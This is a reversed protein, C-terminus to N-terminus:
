EGPLVKLKKAIKNISAKSHALLNEELKELAGKCLKELDNIRKEKEAVSVDM